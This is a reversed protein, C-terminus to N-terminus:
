EPIKGTTPPQENELRFNACLLCFNRWGTTIDFRPQTSGKENLGPRRVSKRTATVKTALAKM